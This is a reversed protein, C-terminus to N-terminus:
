GKVLKGNEYVYRPKLVRKGLDIQKGLDGNKRVVAKKAGCSCGAMDRDRGCSSCRM